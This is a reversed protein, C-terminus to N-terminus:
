YVELFLFMTNMTIWITYKKTCTHFMPENPCLYGIKPFLIFPWALLPGDIISMEERKPAM